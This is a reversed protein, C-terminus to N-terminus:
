DKSSRDGLRHQVSSRVRLQLEVAPRQVAPLRRRRASRSSASSRSAACAISAAGMFLPSFGSASTDQIVQTRSRQVSRHERVARRRRRRSRRRAHLRRRRVSALKLHEGPFGMARRRAASSEESRSRSLRQRAAFHSRAAYVHASLLVITRGSMYLGGHTRTILWDVGSSRPRAIPKDATPSRSM